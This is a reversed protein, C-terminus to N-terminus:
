ENKPCNWSLTEDSWSWARDRPHPKRVIIWMNKSIDWVHNPRQIQKYTPIPKTYDGSKKAITIKEKSEGTHFKCNEYDKVEVPLFPKDIKFPYLTEFTSKVITIKQFEERSISSESIALQIMQTRPIKYRESDSDIILLNGILVRREVSCVQVTCRLPVCGANFGPICFLLDDRPRYSMSSQDEYVSFSTKLDSFSVMSHNPSFRGTPNIIVFKGNNKILNHQSLM